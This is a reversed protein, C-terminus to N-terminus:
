FPQNSNQEQSLQPGYEPLSNALVRPPTLGSKDWSFRNKDGADAQYIRRSDGCYVCQVVKQYGWKRNKLIRIDPRESVLAGDALNIIAASGSVDAKQITEGYKVKRAHAVILVHANYHRAFQKMANVFVAQARYEEDNDALSTMLNDVLFLKCDDKKAAVTFVQLIADAQTVDLFPEDNNYLFFYPDYWDMIRRQVELPVFPINKGAIPDYKLGIWESGAAQLNIWEQFDEKPLEGSYACVKYGQEIANLMLLGSLTSKGMGSQGTLVTVGGEKLGGFAADLDPIMTKIRNGKTPDTPIVSSLKILGKTEIEEASDVMEILASEGFRYLIENADKCKKNTNEVTPYDRVVLVRHEGLKKILTDVMRRGPDDNDGFLIITQFKELWDWCTTVWDLNDCGSPVSVANTIGAEYLAMMDIMGETIVLPQSFVVKDMNFLISKTGSDQWEKRKDEKRPKWPHRYKRFIEEGDWFFRFVIDGEKTAAIDLADVTERSIKRTEFYTYITDTVAFVDSSPLVFQKDSKKQFGQRAIHIENGSLEKTLEEFRGHRGCSGRKCVFTGNNLFLVFTRKDRGSSGGQCLPCLEPILKEDMGSSKIQYEGFYKDAFEIMVERSSNDM